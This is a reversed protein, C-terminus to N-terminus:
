QTGGRNDVAYAGIRLVSGNALPEWSMQEVPVGALYARLVRLTGGHAVVVVDAAQTGPQDVLDDCFAAARQYLERVSEGGDPSTDPDAVLGADLGTKDPTAAALPGGEIVGMNRERLRADTIVPLGLVKSFANATQMARRLDSSYLASVALGRFREAVAAAQEVGRATLEADDRHGQALGLENWTSEGHRVLWLASAEPAHSLATTSHPLM